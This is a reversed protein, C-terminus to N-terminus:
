RRSPQSGPFAADFKQLLLDLKEEVRQLRQELTPSPPSSDTSATLGARPTPTPTPSPSPAPTPLLGPTAPPAVGTATGGSPPWVIVEGGARTIIPRLLREESRPLSRVSGDAM